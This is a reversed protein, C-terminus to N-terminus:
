CRCPNSNNPQAQAFEQLADSANRWLGLNASLTNFPRHKEHLLSGVPAHEQNPEGPEPM